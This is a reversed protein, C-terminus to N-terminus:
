MIKVVLGTMEALNKGINQEGLLDKLWQEEAIQVGTLCHNGSGDWDIAPVNSFVQNVLNGSQSAFVYNYASQVTVSQSMGDSSTRFAIKFCQEAKGGKGDDVEIAFVYSGDKPNEWTLLGSQADIKAGSPGALSDRICM